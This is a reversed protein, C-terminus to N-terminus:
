HLLGPSTPNGEGHAVMTFYFVILPGQARFQQDPNYCLVRFCVSRPCSWFFNQGNQYDLFRYLLLSYLLHLFM